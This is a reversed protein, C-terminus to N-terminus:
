AGEWAALFLGRAAIEATIAPRDLLLVGGPPVFIGALGAEAARRVTEVGIGPMDVRLEQGAKPAKYFVGKAGRRLHEPTRAVFELLADTGQVTEIGLCLGGAVVCGQGVDVPALAAHIAAARAADALDAKGPKAGILLGREPTLGPVLEHAGVVTFGEDEFIRVVLSLLSDDGGNMAKLLRPALAIMKTDFRIPSLAPRQMAGALCVREVGEARLLRFLGGLKEFSAEVGAVDAEVGRFTVVLAGPNAALVLGPLAGSGALIALRGAM